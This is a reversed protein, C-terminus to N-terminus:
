KLSVFPPYVLTDNESTIIAREKSFLDSSPTKTPNTKEVQSFPGLGAESVQESQGSKRPVSKDSSRRGVVKTRTEEFPKENKTGGIM